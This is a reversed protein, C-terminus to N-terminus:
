DKVKSYQLVSTTAAWVGKCTRHHVLWCGIRSGGVDGRCWTVAVRWWTLSAHSACTGSDRWTAVDWLVARLGARDGWGAAEGCCTVVAM